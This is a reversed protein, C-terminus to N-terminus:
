GTRVPAEYNEYDEVVLESNRLARPNNEPPRLPVTEQLQNNQRMPPPQPPQNNAKLTGQIAKRFLTASGGRKEPLPPPGFLQPAAQPQQSPNYIPKEYDM